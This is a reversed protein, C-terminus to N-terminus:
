GVVVQLLTSVHRRLRHNEDAGNLAAYHPWQFLSVLLEHARAARLVMDPDLDRRSAYRNVMEPLPVRAGTPAARVSPFALDGAPDGFGCAQWDLWVLDGHDGSAEIEHSINDVHCDGHVFCPDLAASQDLLPAPDALLDRVVPGSEAWYARITEDATTSPRPVRFEGNDEGNDFFATDTRHITALDDALALWDDSTWETAPKPPPHKTIVLAIVDETILQDLLQPTRIGVRGALERYFRAERQSGAWATSGPDATIKLIVEHEAATSTALVHSGSFAGPLSRSGIVTLDLASATRNIVISPEM